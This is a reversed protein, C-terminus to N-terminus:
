KPVGELFILESVPAGKLTVELGKSLEEGTKEVNPNSADEFTLRYRVGPEVGRFKLTITDAVPSPKFLYVVGKKASPDYYQIGDWHKGDPRPLIHYLDANRVLPRIRTKYTEVAKKVDQKQQDTWPKGGNGGNGGNPADIYWNPAGMSCSRFWYTVDGLLPEQWNGLHGTLQVPPFMYSGGYFIQRNGLLTCNDSGQIKVCREVAGFDKIRGGGACSEWQFNPIERYLQDLMEYFGKVSKYNADVVMGGTADSRWMDAKYEDYLRKIHSMRRIRGKSDAMDEGKNWYLGFRMGAQHAYEAAKAMGSPWDVPDADPERACTEGQWWGVDLMVEEFGLPRMDDVLPYYKSEVSDWSGHTKGTSGFANWQVKPYSPDDRVVKPMHYQFLYRRLSNGADDVDGNYAGVFGPPVEFSAGPAVDIRFKDYEGGRVRVTGPKDGMLAAVAIRCYSWEIGVYVGHCGRSDLVAYPIFKSTFPDTDIRRFFPKRIDNRYIGPEDGNIGETHFSWLTMHTTKAAGVLTVEDPALNLHVTPQEFFSIPKGSKNVISMTHRIPGRGPRAHWTSELALAPKACVFRLTIKEGDTKDSVGEQFSWQVRHEVNGVRAKVPLDFVSPEKTWNWGVSPNSLEYVVLQGERTAGITLRTDDTAITWAEVRQGIEPCPVTMWVPVIPDMSDVAERRLNSAGGVTLVAGDRGNIFKVVLLHDGKRLQVQSLHDLMTIPQKGNGKALTDSIVAGDIWAKHWWDAGIGFTNLGDEQVTFPIYVYASKQQEGYGISTDLLEGLDLRGSDITFEHRTTAVGGVTLTKPLELLQGAAPEADSKEALAFVTWRESLEASGVIQALDFWKEDGGGPALIRWDPGDPPLTQSPTTPTPTM